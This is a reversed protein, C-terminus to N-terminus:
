ADSMEKDEVMAKGQQERLMDINLRLRDSEEIAERVEREKEVIINDRKRIDNLIDKM